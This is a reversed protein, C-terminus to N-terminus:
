GLMGQPETTTSTRSGFMRGLRVVPPHVCTTADFRDLGVPFQRLLRAASSRANDVWLLATAFAFPPLLGLGIQCVNPPGVSWTITGPSRVIGCILLRFM